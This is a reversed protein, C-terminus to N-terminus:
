AGTCSSGSAASSLFRVIPSKTPYASAGRSYAPTGLALVARGPIAIAADGAGVCGASLYTAPLRSYVPAPTTTTTPATTTPATTTTSTTTSATTTTTTGAAYASAAGAAALVIGFLLLWVGRRM